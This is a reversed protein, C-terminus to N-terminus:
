SPMPHRCNHSRVVAFKVKAEALNECSLGDIRAVEVRNAAVITCGLSLTQAAILM